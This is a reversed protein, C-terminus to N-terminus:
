GLLIFTQAVIGQETKGTAAKTLSLRDAAIAAHVAVAGIHPLAYTFHHPPCTRAHDDISGHLREAM